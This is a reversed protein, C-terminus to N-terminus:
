CLQRPECLALTLSQVPNKQALRCFFYCLIQLDSASSNLVM